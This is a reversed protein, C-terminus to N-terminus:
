KEGKMLESEKKELSKIKREISSLLFRINVGESVELLVTSFDSEGSAKHKVLKVKGLIGGVTIVEEGKQLNALMEQKAKQEKRQPRILLFWFVFFIAVMPFLFRIIEEIQSGSSISTQLLFM